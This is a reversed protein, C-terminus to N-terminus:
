YVGKVRSTFWQPAQYLEANPDIITKEAFGGCVTEKVIVDEIQIQNAAWNAMLLACYRDKRMKAKKNNSDLKDPTDWKDRGNTTQTIIINSLENKLEEIEIVCDELTDFTRNNAMDEISSLGVEISDFYPFLIKKNELDMRLGHNSSSTWEASAFNIMELIHLGRMGDTDKPKDYNIYEYIPLESQELNKINKFGERIAVGGGQSDLAIRSCPFRKMLDRIKRICYAYFDQESIAKTKLKENHDKKNTSWAYVVRRHNDHLELVIISFNDVESAPDIGYVYKCNPNGILRPRFVEVIQNEPTVVCSEIVSRKFFGTSDKSFVAGYEMNYTGTHITAKARAIIGADMFGEPILEYPVRIIAYDKWNFNPDFGDKFYQAIKTHDGKSTIFDKWKRYYDYFHNFQYYATGSVIIQNGVEYKEKSFEDEIGLELAKKRRAALKIKEVPSSAVAAFGFIVNELIEKNITNHQIFGNGIFSHTKPMHFDYLHEQEPLKEVSRVKILHNHTNWYNNYADICEQETEYSGIYVNKNGRTTSVVLRNKNKRIQPKRIFFDADDFCGQWKIVNLLKYLSYANEGRISLMWNKNKSLKNKNRLTISSIIGFKLLLIQLVEILRYSSSYYSIGIRKKGKDTYNFATGDGEFLGSLFNVVVSKPSQLISKPIEKNNSINYDLGLNYLTSRFDTNNYQLNWSEKCLFGRNDKYEPRYHEKWDFHIKEKITDILKKDTNSIIIYNRNTITGESILLGLLWGLKDDLVINNNQIYQTPFYNNFVLELNDENTLDKGLKWGESTMVRHINSCKFSYGNQTTIKYVDTKPTKLIQDPIELENNINVLSYANTSMYDAIKILGIDTQIMTDFALCAFEDTIIDNARQGRIKGGDGIPYASAVSDGIFFRYMDQERRPGNKQSYGVMDRLLPANNWINEMYEFIVKAQRFAAGTIAVKRKDLLLLRIMGYLALTFSNHSIYGDTLFSHDDPIYVDYTEEEIYTISEVKDFYYHKDLIDKIQPINSYKVLSDYTMNNKNYFESTKVFKEILSKPVIDKNTNPKINLSLLRDQKEKLGFGIQDRFKYVDNGLIYLYYYDRNYKKNHRVSTRAIIGFNTLISKLTHILNKSKAALEIWLKNKIISGDTDFLGRIFAAVSEKPASLICKPFDKEACISSNFGFENFLRDYIDVSCLAYQYKANQKHFNKGFVQKVIPNFKDVLESTKSTFTIVRRNTYGGDGVLCGFFYALDPNLNNHNPFWESNRVIPLYDGIKINSGEVWDISNGCVVRMPHNKTIKLQSGSEMNIQLIQEKPNKWVYEAKKYGNEGCLYLNDVYKKTYPNINGVLNEIKIFGSNTKTYVECACKGWGRSCVIMPFKHNWLAELILAQAPYIEVNLIYKCLFSFYEPRTMLWCIYDHINKDYNEPINELPNYILNNSIDLNLWADSLIMQIEEPSKDKLNM